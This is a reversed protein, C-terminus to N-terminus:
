WKINLEKETLIMFKWGKENCLQQAAEWKKKNVGYTKVENIFTRKSKKETRKPELTQVHPKIEVVITEDKGDKNKQRFIFDPFYRHLRNDLPSMYPICFEESAWELVSPHRDLWSMFKLEYSSRYVINKVNGRYKQPNIPKFFGQYKM